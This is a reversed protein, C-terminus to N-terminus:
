RRGKVERVCVCEGETRENIERDREGKWGDGGRGEGKLTVAM